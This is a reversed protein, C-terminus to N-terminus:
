KPPTGATIPTSIVGLLAFHAFDNLSYIVTHVMVGIRPHAATATIMRILMIVCAGYSFADLHSRYTILARLDELGLFFEDLKAEWSLEENVWPISALRIVYAAGDEDSSIDTTAVLTLYVLPVIFL